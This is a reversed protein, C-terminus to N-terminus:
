RATRIDRTYSIGCSVVQLLQSLVNSPVQGTSSQSTATYNVFLNLYRGMRTSAQFGGLFSSITEKRALDLNHFYGTSLEVSYKRDFERALSASVTNTQAGMLYGSGGSTGRNFTLDASFLRIQYDISAQAAVGVSSPIGATASGLIWEPGASINTHISRKWHRQYGFIGTNTVFDFGYSTYSFRSFLYQSTLTNRANLRVDLGGSAVLSDTDLGNGSPFRLLDYNGAMTFSSAHNLIHEVGANANNEVTHTNVTLIYQTSPPNSGPGIPEGTGPIGSFGTTPAQPRYSVDDSFSASWKRWDFAQSVLLRQFIGTSYSPGSLTATYGGAYDLTFPHTKHGNTYNLSGSPNITNWNDLTGGFNATESLRIAYTLDGAGSTASPASQSHALTGAAIFLLARLLM